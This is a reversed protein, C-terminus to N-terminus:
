AAEHLLDTLAVDLATSLKRLTAERPWRKGRELQNVAQSTLGAKRALAAQSLGKQKRLESLRKGFM